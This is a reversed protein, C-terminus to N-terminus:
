TLDHARAIDAYRAYYRRLRDIGEDNKLLDFAAFYPLELGDHFILQTELGSDTVFLRGNLQPLRDRYKSM